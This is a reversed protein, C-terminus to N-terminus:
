FDEDLSFAPAAPEGERVHNNTKQPGLLGPLSQISVQQGSGAILVESDQSSVVYFPVSTFGFVSKAMDKSAVPAFAHTMHEWEGEEVLEKAFEEDDLCISLFVAQHGKCWEEAFENLKTLAAPCRQCRTTWFDIVTPKGSSLTSLTTPTSAEDLLRLELDPLSM